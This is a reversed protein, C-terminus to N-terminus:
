ASTRGVSQVGTRSAVPNAAALRRQQWGDRATALVVLSAIGLVLVGGSFIPARRQGVPIAVLDPNVLLVAVQTSDGANAGPNDWMLDFSSANLRPTEGSFLVAGRGVRLQLSVGPRPEDPLTPVRLRIEDLALGTEPGIKVVLDSRDDVAVGFSMDSELLALPIAFGDAGASNIELWLAPDVEAYFPEVSLEVDVLLRGSEDIPVTTDPQADVPSFLVESSRRIRAELWAFSELAGAEAHEATPADVAVLISSTNNLTQVRLEDVEVGADSVIEEIAEPSSILEAYISAIRFFDSSALGADTLNAVGDPVVIMRLTATFKPPVSVWVGAVALGVILAGVAVFRLQRRLVELLEYLNM